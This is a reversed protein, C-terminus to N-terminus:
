KDYYVFRFKGTGRIIENLPRLPGDKTWLSSTSLYIHQFCAPVFYSMNALRHEVEVLSENMAGGYMNVSSLFDAPQADATKGEDELRRLTAAFMYLDYMSFVFFTSVSAPFYGRTLMCSASVCCPFGYTLDSCAPLTNNALKFVEAGFRRQISGQFNIFWSSDLLVSLKSAMKHSKIVDNLVWEAHNMIGIAGASSGALVIEEAQVLSSFRRLLDRIVSRFITHGRFSFNDVQSDNVFSFNRQNTRAGLWLDSSCYPVLVHTYDHFVPNKEVAASLMGMGEVKEPMGKSTMLITSNENLYRRNCEIKSACLGGSEFFLIWKNTSSMSGIFYTAQTGDNCVAERHDVNVKHLVNRGTYHVELSQVATFCLFLVVIFLLCVVTKM